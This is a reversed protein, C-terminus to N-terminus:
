SNSYYDKYWDVFAKLGDHLNTTPKFGTFNELKTTNAFTKYVDGDQMPKLNQISKEGLLNELITIFDILKVPHSNGINYIGYPPNEKPTKSLINQIGNVIDDIYTFDRLLDGKNFVDIPTHELIAKTFKFYAM